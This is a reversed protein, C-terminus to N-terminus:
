QGIIPPFNMSAMLTLPPSLRVGEGLSQFHTIEYPIVGMKMVYHALGQPSLAQFLFIGTNLIILTLTLFPFHRTPNEDKLPIFM